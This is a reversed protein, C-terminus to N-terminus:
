LLGNGKKDFLNSLIYDKFFEKAPKDLLKKTAKETQKINTILAM